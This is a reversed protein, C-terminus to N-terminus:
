VIDERGPCVSGMGRVKSDFHGTGISMGELWESM